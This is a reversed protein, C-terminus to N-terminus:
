HHGRPPEQRGGAPGRGPPPPAIRSSRRASDPATPASSGNAAISDRQLEAPRPQWAVTGQPHDHWGPDEFSQLDPRVKLVTFMGGMTIYDFPGRGGIMPISNEPVKMHGSALMEGMDGMGTQGMTMYAPLLQKIKSDLGRADVGIMNPFNHGMQNMTHHTMHCHMAWDGPEDAVFEIDRASGVPVLVTTDPQQASEPYRGGDSGTIWFQYGHLHIPHHNTASGNALRIRIRQGLRVVLPATGYKMGPAPKAVVVITCTPMVVTAHSIVANTPGVVSRAVSIANTCFTFGTPAPHLSSRAAAPMESASTACSFRM